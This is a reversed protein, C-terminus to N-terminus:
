ARINKCKQILNKFNENLLSKESTGVLNIFIINKDTVRMYIVYLDNLMKYSRLYIPGLKTKTFYM